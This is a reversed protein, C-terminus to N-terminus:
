HPLKVVRYFRRPSAPTTDLYECTGSHNYVTGLAEWAVFDATCEIRYNCAVPGAVILRVGNGTQEVHVCQVMEAALVTLTAETSVTFDIDNNVVVSYQAADTFTVEPIQLTANTENALAIGNRRWQYRLPADGTATVSFIATAGFSVATDQPPVTIVPSGPSNTVTYRFVIFDRSTIPSEVSGAVYVNRAADLGIGIPYDFSSGSGHAPTRGDFRAVWMRSGNADLKCTLIDGYDGSHGTVYANGLDDLVLRTAMDYDFGSDFRTAWLQEGGANYKVTVIDGDSQGAVYVNGAGDVKLDVAEDTQRPASSYVALWVQQGNTDYKITAYDYDFYVTTGSNVWYEASHKGTVYVNGQADVAIASPRDDAGGLGSHAATWIQNGAGDYKVTVYDAVQVYEIGDPEVSYGTVYINGAPDVALAVPLDQADSYDLRRVWLRNGDGDFKLTLIESPIYREPGAEATICVNGAADVKMDVPHPFDGPATYETAWLDEGNSHYKVLTLVHENETSGQVWGAVYVSGDPALALETAAFTIFNTRVNWREWALAGTSEYKLLVSGRGNNGLVYTNGQADVVSAEPYDPVSNTYNYRASWALAAQPSITLRASATASGYQNTAVVTYVGANVATANTITLYYDNATVPVGNHFWNIVVEGDGEVQARFQVHSGAVVCQDEPGVVIRAPIVVTLRANPSVVLGGNNSIEVAYNGANISEVQPLLVSSGTAGVIANGNHYWQYRLPGAGTAVVSLTANNGAIVTQSQPATTIRPVDGTGADVYKILGIREYNDSALGLVYANTGRARVVVGYDDGSDLGNYIDSWYRNGDTDYRLTLWNRYGYQGGATGTIYIGASGDWSISKGVDEYGEPAGFTAVWLLEGTPSYKLTLVDEDQHYQGDGDYYSRIYAKGTVYINRTYDIELAFPEDSGYESLAFTRKWLPEGDTPRFKITLFGRNNQTGSAHALVVPDGAADIKLGVLRQDWSDAVIHNWVQSGSANYKMLIVNRGHSQDWSHGAAYVEADSHAAVKCTGSTDNGPLSQIGAWLQVGNTDYGVTVLSSQSSLGSGFSGVVYINGSLSLTIDQKRPAQGPRAFQRTWLRNGNADYKVTIVGRVNNSVVAEGVVYVNGAGDVAVAGVYSSANNTTFIRDWLQEGASTFKTTLYGQPTPSELWNGAVYANEAADLGMDVPYTRLPAGPSFLSVWERRAQRTVTLLANASIVVGARNSVVVSYLGAQELQVNLLELKASFAGPINTGNHRWQYSLPRSGTASVDFVVDAGPLVSQGHPQQVIQPPVGIALVATASMVAGVVNRVEVAYFGANNEGASTVTYSALTAGGIPRGNFYWQYSLGTGTATVDFTVSTGVLVDRGRPSQTIVPLGVIETQRYRFLLLESVPNYSVGSVYLDGGAALALGGAFEDSSKGRSSVAEWLRTGNTDFKSTVFDSGTEADYKGFLRYASGAADVAFSDVGGGVSAATIESSVWLLNGSADYKVISFASLGTNEENPLSSTGAVYVNGAADTDLAYPYDWGDMMGGFQSVWLLDGNPSYKLTLFDSDSEAQAASATAIVNGNADLKMVTAQGSYADYIRTWLVTGAHDYKITVLKSAEQYSLGFVYVGSADVQIASAADSSSDGLSYRVAWQQVGSANFKVTLFDRNVQSSETGGTVYVNGEADLAMGAVTDYANTRTTEYAAAWLQNGAPSYKVVALWRGGNDGVTGAVYVNNSADLEATAVYNARNTGPAYRASWTPVGNTDFQVTLFEAQNALQLTQALHAKGDTGVRLTQPFSYGQGPQRYTGAFLQELGPVLSLTASESTASGAINTVVVSYNGANAPQVNSIVLLSNTAGAIATGGHLWQFFLPESGTVMVSFSAASGAIVQQSVPQEVVEPALLVNLLAETSAVTGSSNSVEVYYYGRAGGGVNTLILTSNTADTIPIGDRRWQYELGEGAATVSFTAGGGEVTTQAVPHATIEPLGPQPLQRYKITVYDKTGVPGVSGGVYVHGAGDVHVGSLSMGFNDSHATTTEWVRQGNPRLKITAFQYQNGSTYSTGTVYINGEADLAMGGVVDQYGSPSNYRSTWLSEGSASVKWVLYDYYSSGVGRVAACLNGGDDLDVAVVDIGYQSNFLTHQARWLLDGEANYQLAMLRRVDTQSGRRATFAIHAKGSPDVKMQPVLEHGQESTDFHREWLLTGAPSYKLLTVRAWYDERESSGCVYINGAGDMGMATARDAYGAAGNYRAVWLETGNTAYKITAFDLTQQPSMSTGTVYVEGGANVLMAMPNDPSQNNTGAGNYRAVWLETGEPAYKITAYDPDYGSAFGHSFGTVYVYGQGDVVVSLPVDIARPGTYRAEWLRTGNTDYKVTGYPDPNVNNDSSGTVYVRGGVDVTLASFVDERSAQGNYRREWLQEVPAANVTVVLAVTAALSWKFM